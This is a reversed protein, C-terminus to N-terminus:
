QNVSRVVSQNATCVTSVSQVSQNTSIIPHNYHSIPHVSQMQSVTSVSLNYQSISRSIPQSVTSVLPNNNNYSPSCVSWVWPELEQGLDGILKYRMIWGIWSKICHPYQVIQRIPCSWKKIIKPRFQKKRNRIECKFCSAFGISQM